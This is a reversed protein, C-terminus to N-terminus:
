EWVLDKTTHDWINWPKLVYGIRSKFYTNFYEIEIGQFKLMFERAYEPSNIKKDDRIEKWYLRLDFAHEAKIKPNQM